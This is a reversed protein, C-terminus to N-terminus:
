AFKSFHSVSYIGVSTVSKSEAKSCFKEKANQGWIVLKGLFLSEKVPYFHYVSLSMWRFKSTVIVM